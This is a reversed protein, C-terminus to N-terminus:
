RAVMIPNKPFLKVFKRLIALTYDTALPLSGLLAEVVENQFAYDEYSEPQGYLASPHSRQVEVAM